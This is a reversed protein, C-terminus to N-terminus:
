GSGGGLDFVARAAREAPSGAEGRIWASFRRRAGSDGRTCAEALECYECAGAEEILASTVLRPPLAGAALANLLTAVADDFAVRAATDGPELRVRAQEEETAPGGFVFSGASSNGNAEFAAYAAIQLRRGERIGALLHDKRTSARKATSVPKGTKYDILELQKEGADVRDARFALELPVGGPGVISLRADLEAGVVRPLVGGRTELEGIRHLIPRVRRALFRAFGPLVIGEEMAVEHAANQLLAELEETTPWDVDVPTRPLLPQLSGRTPAGSRAVIAELTDHVVNGLLAPNADPFAALADPVPELGLSRGLFSQWPCRALGELRTVYLRQLRTSDEGIFGSYPGPRQWRPGRAELEDLVATRAAGRIPDLAHMLASQPGAGGRLATCVLHEALPRTRSDAELPALADHVPLEPRALLIREVLPSRPREKGDESVAQWSLVVEPAAGCLWAFLHREEDFGRSKVPIGPLLQALARRLSDPLLPDEGVSRPFVDRNLGVLFLLDFSRGRAEMATLVQVGAGAGGLRARGAGELLRGLLLAVESGDFTWKPLVRQALKQGAALVPDRGSTTATWALPGALLEDLWVLQAELASPESAQELWRLTAGAADVAWVLTERSIARRLLRGPVRVRTSESDDGSPVEQDTDIGRVSPLRLRGDRGLREDLDLSALDRLRRVGLRHLGLRLDGFEAGRLRDTADLWLDTVCNEGESLLGLLARVRRAERTAFGQGGSFPIGFARFEQSLALRYGALDRAVFGIREPVAGADLLVRVREAAARVEARAGQARQIVFRVPEFGPDGESLEPELGPDGELLEPEGLRERLRETFRHGPAQKDPFAPDTPMPLWVQAGQIRVLAAILDSAVGTADAVGHIFVASSPLAEPGERELRESAELFVTSRPMLGGNECAILVRSAVRVLAEARAGVRGTAVGALRECVGQEHPRLFAADLLDRVVGLLAGEGGSPEGSGGWGSSEHLEGLLDPEEAAARRVLVPLLLDGDAAPPEPRDQQVLQQAIAALTQIEVGLLAPRERVLRASFHQRLSASPVIVRVPRLLGGPNRVAADALGVVAAVLRDEAARAGRAAVVPAEFGIKGGLRVGM